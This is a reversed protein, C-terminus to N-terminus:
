VQVTLIQAAIPMPIIQTDLVELNYKWITYM